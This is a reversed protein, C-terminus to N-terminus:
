ILRGVVERFCEGGKLALLGGFGGGVILADLKEQLAPRTFGPDVYPDTNYHELKGTIEQYQNNGDARLRRAREEAYRRRLEAPDFGLEQPTPIGTPQSQMEAESM